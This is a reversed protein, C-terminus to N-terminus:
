STSRRIRGSALLVLLFAPLARSRRGAVSRLDGRGAHARGGAAAVDGGVGAHGSHHDREHRLAVLPVVAHPVLDHRAAAYPPDHGPLQDGYLDLQVGPDDGGSDDGDGGHEHDHQVAYLVDLRHGREGSHDLARRFAGGFVYVYFSALNLRPFALDKAGLMLPLVFNGLIAPIGPIIFLFIMLAGHLTFLQNYTKADFVDGEPTLLELRILMALLGGLFFAAIVAVAYMIAIRKHDRTFLWSRLGREVNLYNV